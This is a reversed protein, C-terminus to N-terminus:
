TGENTRFAGNIKPFRTAAAMPTVSTIRANNRAYSAKRAIPL